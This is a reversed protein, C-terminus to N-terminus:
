ILNILASDFDVINLDSDLKIDYIYVNTKAFTMHSRLAVGNRESGENAM